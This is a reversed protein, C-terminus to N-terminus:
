MLDHLDLEVGGPVPDIPLLVPNRKSGRGADIQVACDDDLVAPTIIAFSAKPCVGLDAAVKM